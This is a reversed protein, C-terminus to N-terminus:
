CVPLDGKILIRYLLREQDDNIPTACHMTTINDWILLDGKAWKHQYTAESTIAHLYLREILALGEVKEMDMVGLARHVNVFLAKKKTTPHIRVLPHAVPPQNIYANKYYVLKDAILNKTDLDLTDYAICMNVFHTEGGVNPAKLAYFLTTKNPNPTFYSDAHYVYEPAIVGAALKKENKVNTHKTIVPYNALRFTPVLAPTPEGFFQAIQILQHEILSQNPIILLHHTDLREILKHADNLNLNSLNVKHIVCGLSAGSHESKVYVM